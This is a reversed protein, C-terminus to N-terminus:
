SEPEGTADRVWADGETRRTAFARLCAASGPHMSLSLHLLGNQIGQVQFSDTSGDTSAASSPTATVAGFALRGVPLYQSGYERLVLQTM